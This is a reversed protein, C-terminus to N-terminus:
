ADIQYHGWVKTGKEAFAWEEKSGEGTLALYNNWNAKVMRTNDGFVELRSTGEGPSVTACYHFVGVAGSSFRALGMTNYGLFNQVGTLQAYNSVWQAEDIESSLLWRALDISWVSLTFDPYGGSEKVNWAWSGYPWQAALDKAAIFESFTLALPKGIARQEILEKAKVYNPTFRFNLDPMLIVGAEEAMEGLREAESITPTLPMECLVHKGGALAESVLKYHFPTPVAVVVADIEPNKLVVRYDLYYPVDHKAAVAKAKEEAVDVVAALEAGPIKTFAPAHARRGVFGLGVVAVRVKRKEAAM